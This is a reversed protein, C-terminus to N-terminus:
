SEKPKPRRTFRCIALGATLVTIAMVGIMLIRAGQRDYGETRERDKREMIEQHGRDYATLNTKAAIRISAAEDDRMREIDPYTYVWYPVTVIGWGVLATVAFIQWLRFQFPPRAM